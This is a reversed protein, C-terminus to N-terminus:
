NQLLLISSLIFFILAAKGFGTRPKPENQKEVPKKMTEKQRIAESLEGHEQETIRGEDLLQKLEQKSTTEM